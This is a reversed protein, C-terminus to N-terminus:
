TRRVDRSEYSSNSQESRLPDDDDLGTHEVEYASGKEVGPQREDIFAHRKGSATLLLLEFPRKSSCQSTPWNRGLWSLPDGTGMRGPGVVDAAQRTAHSATIDQLV